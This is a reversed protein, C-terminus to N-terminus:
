RIDMDEFKPNRFWHWLEYGFYPSMSATRGNGSWWYSNARPDSWVKQRNRQDTQEAFRWYAEDTVDIVQKGDLILKEIGRLAYHTVMEAYAAVHLGGNANPGYLSWMNPFGPYMCTMYARAGGGDSWLEEITKGGIGTIKMPYLFDNARFGTAYVIVDADHQIGKSDEIGTENITKIGDTVLTVNDRLIADAISYDADCLVPRTSFVPHPPTMVEILKPDVLKTTLYEICGDRAAKNAESVAHPDGSYNPDVDFVKSYDPGYGYSAKFRMFNTHYPLNRDLWNVQEPSKALYGPAPFLWQATRQFVTVHAAELALEPVLQYGTCGTGIVIIRKGNLDLDDPWRATHFARGKFKEMGEIKPMNPRSLFGVGTIIANARTVQRGNPGDAHIEWESTKEDWKLERVETNFTTDKRLDFRDAVWDFYKQSEFHPGFAFPYPFDVGFLHTYMRSPTDVRAGPYRNERWTGGVGDNKEILNYKIGLRQLNVAANLGGMGTGIVTVTFDKLRKPDPTASWEVSRAWPEFAAEEVFMERAYEPIESGAQLALSEPLREKPGFGIAPAGADRHKKLFEVTKRRLMAVDEDTAPALAEIRGVKVKKLEMTKLTPDGTLQYLLGRLVMPEAYGVADEIVADSAGLLEPQAPAEIRAMKLGTDGKPHKTAGSLM